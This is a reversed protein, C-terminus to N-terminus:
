SASHRVAEWSICPFSRVFATQDVLMMLFDGQGIIVKSKTNGNVSFIEGSLSSLRLAVDFALGNDDVFYQATSVRMAGSAVVLEASREEVTPAGPVLLDIESVSFAEPVFVTMGPMLNPPTQQDEEDALSLTFSTHANGGSRISGSDLNQQVELALDFLAAASEYAPSRFAACIVSEDQRKAIFNVVANVRAEWDPAEELLGHCEVLLRQSGCPCPIKSTEYPM